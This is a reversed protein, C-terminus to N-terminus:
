RALISLVQKERDNAVTELAVAFVKDQGQAVKSTGAQASNLTLKDGAKVQGYVRLSVVGAIAARVAVGGSELQLGAAKIAVGILTQNESRMKAAVGNEVTLLDGDVFAENSARPLAVSICASSKLTLQGDVQVQGEAHLAKESGKFGPVSRPLHLAYASASILTAAVSDRSSAQIAPATKSIHYSATGDASLVTGGSLNAALGENNEIQFPIQLDIPAALSDPVSTKASRKIHLNGTHSAFEHQVAAYESHAHTKPERADSLRVDNSQVAQGPASVGSRAFQVTGRLEESANQLRPDSSQVAKLDASENKRSFQVRGKHSEDGEVLRPDDAAVAKASAIEGHSSLQVIGPWAQTAARLRSDSGQVAKGIASDGDRALFVIGAADVGAVKLRSDNSQLAMGSKVEGDKALQVIGFSDQTANRLRADNGQVAASARTEGNKALQVIGLSTETAVKLRSDNGQVAKEQSAENDRAFQVIGKYDTSADRLRADDSQVVRGPAVINNGALLVMGPVNESAMRGGTKTSSATTHRADAEGTVAVDLLKSQYEGKKYHAHKDIQVRAYRARTAAFRWAHWTLPAAFFHDESQMTHWVGGDESLQLHFATPFFNYEDALARLRIETVFFLAGLDVDITESENKERIPSAWGYDERRDILNEATWLRDFESTAKVKVRSVFGPQFKRIDSKHVPGGEQYFHVQFFQAEVLPFYFERMEGQSAHTMGHVRQFSKGDESWSVDVLVHLASEYRMNNIFVPKEFEIKATCHPATREIHFSLLGNHHEIKLAPSLSHAHLAAVSQSRTLDM